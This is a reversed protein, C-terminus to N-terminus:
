NPVNTMVFYHLTLDGAFTIDSTTRYKIWEASEMTCPNGYGTWSLDGVGPPCSTGGGEEDTCGAVLLGALFSAATHVPVGDSCALKELLWTKSVDYTTQETATM